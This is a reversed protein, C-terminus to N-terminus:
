PDLRLGQMLELRALWSGYQVVVVSGDRSIRADYLEYEGAEHLDLDLTGTIKQSPIAVQVLRPPTAGRLGLWLEDNSSWGAPYPRLDSPVSTIRIPESAGTSVVTPVFSTGSVAIWRDDPSVAIPTEPLLESGALPELVRRSAVDVPFLQFGARETHRAAIWLRRGDRAWQGVGVVLDPLPVEETTGAGTPVLFLKRRDGSTLAATRRDPSLAVALGPGLVKAPKGDTERMVVYPQAGSVEAEFDNFLLTRGDSSLDKMDPATLWSLDRLGPRGPKLSAVHSQGELFLLLITGDPAVDELVAVSPFRELDRAAGSLSRESLTTGASSYSTFLLGKGDARWALKWIPAQSWTSLVRPANSGDLVVLDSQSSSPQHLFAVREGDPSCRLDTILGVGTWVTKGLPREIWTRDGDRRAVVLEGSPTWDANTVREALERPVGGTPSLRALTGRVWNFAFSEPNLLVALEGTKRSVAALQATQVGLPQPASSGRVHSYIEEPRGDFLGSFVIHGDPAFRSGGIHGPRFTIREFTPIQRVQGPRAVVRMLGAGAAVLALAAGVRGIKAWRARSSGSVIPRGRGSTPTTSAGLAFALDAASQFRRGPEKELCRRVVLDVWPPVTDPLPAPDAELIAQGSEIFSTAPFARRGALKEYLVTGFSFIDTRADVPDGRVQEPSMYGPTGLVAGPRTGIGEPTLTTDLLNRTGEIPRPATLKAIGFDLLKARGGSTVFINEPKIDRHVVGRAHAAALGEAIQTALDISTRLPLRGHSLRQRLSEGELLETVLFPSGDTSGVDHVVVLNPHSLSGALRAEQEFRQLRESDIMAGDSIVKLAVDRGLRTDRVRYVEGMGGEGLSAIV